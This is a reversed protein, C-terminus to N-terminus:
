SWVLGVSSWKQNHAVDVIAIEITCM